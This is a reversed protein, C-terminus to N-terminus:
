GNRYVEIAKGLARYAPRKATGFEISLAAPDNSSVRYFPRGKRSKMLEGKISDEFAGTNRFAAANAKAAALIEQGIAEVQDSVAPSRWLDQLWEDGNYVFEAM